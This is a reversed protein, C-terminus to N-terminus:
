FCRSRAFPRHGAAGINLLASHTQQTWTRRFRDLSTFPDDFVVIKRGIDSDQKLVALFFALALASRDGSSLATKFCPTGAPTRTDGLDLPTSNIEIQYHSSPTGGTYLHRTNTIRFGANFQDLYENISQEYEVSFTKAISTSNNAFLAGKQKTGVWEKAKSLSRGRHAQCATAIEPEFRKKETSGTSGTRERLVM